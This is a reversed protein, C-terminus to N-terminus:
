GDHVFKALATVTEADVGRDASPTASSHINTAGLGVLGAVNDARVGGGPMVAPANGLEILRGLLDSGQPATPQQGSTLVRDFGLATLEGYAAVPDTVEDFARHFTLAIDSNVGRAIAILEACRTSDVNSDADLIGFVMGPFGLEAIVAVDTKMSEFEREDYVFDTGRPRVMPFVPIAIAARADRLVGISPTTGGEPRGACLEIRDAGAHQAILADTVNYCCIELERAM